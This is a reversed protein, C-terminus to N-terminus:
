SRYGLRRRRRDQARSASKAEMVLAPNSTRAEADRLANVRDADAGPIGLM